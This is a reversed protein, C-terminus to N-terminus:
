KGDRQVLECGCGCNSESGRGVRGWQLVGNEPPLRAGRDCSVCFGSRGKGEETGWRKEAGGHAGLRLEM